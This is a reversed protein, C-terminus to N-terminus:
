IKKNRLEKLIDKLQRRLTPHVRDGEVECLPVLAFEREQMLPHPVNLRPTSIIADDYFMIDIDMTRSCYREKSLSKIEAEQVRDRGLTQEISQTTDLLAEPELPTLVVVAQNYFDNEAHFGWAESRHIGSTAAVEGVREGLLTVARQLLSQMDGQNGGLLLTVRHM